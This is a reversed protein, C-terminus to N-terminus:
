SGIHGITPPATPNDPLTVTIRTGGSGPHDVSIHGGHARTHHNVVALGIGLGPSPDAAADAGQVFPQGLQDQIDTPLGPGNDEVTIVTAQSTSSIRVLIQTGSPTHRVANRALHEIIREVKAQDLHATLREPGSVRLEHDPATITEAVTRAVQPVDVPQRHLDDVGRLMRDVDLLDLVLRELQRANIMLRDAMEALKDGALRDSHRHITQGYGLISTLPTRLEHSVGQLFAARLDQVHRLQRSAEREREAARELQVAWRRMAVFLVGATVLVFLLGKAVEIVARPVTTVEAALDGLSASGVIWLVGALMYLGVVAGVRPVDAESKCDEM